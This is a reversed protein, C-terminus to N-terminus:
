GGGVSLKLNQLVKKTIKLATLQIEKQIHKYKERLLCLKACNKQQM